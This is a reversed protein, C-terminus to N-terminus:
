MCYFFQKYECTNRSFSLMDASICCYLIYTFTNQALLKCNVAALHGFLYFNSIIIRISGTVISYLTYGRTFLTSKM